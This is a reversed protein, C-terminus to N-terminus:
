TVRVALVKEGHKTYNKVAQKQKRMNLEMKEQRGVDIIIVVALRLSELQQFSTQEARLRSFQFANTELTALNKEACYVLAPSFISFICWIGRFCVGITAFYESHCSYIVVTGDCPGGFYLWILNKTQFSVM